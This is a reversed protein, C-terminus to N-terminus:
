GDRSPPFSQFERRFQLRAVGVDNRDSVSRLFNDMRHGFFFKKDAEAYMIFRRGFTAAAAFSAQVQAVHCEHRHRRGRRTLWGGLRVLCRGLLAEEAPSRAV